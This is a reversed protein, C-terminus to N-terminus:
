TADIESPLSEAPVIDTQTPKHSPVVLVHLNTDIATKNEAVQVAVARGDIVPRPHRFFLV